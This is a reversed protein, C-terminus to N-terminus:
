HVNHEGKKFRSIYFAKEKSSLSRWILMQKRFNDIIIRNTSIWEKRPGSLKKIYISFRCRDPIEIDPTIMVKLEQRIGLEYPKIHMMIRLERHKQKCIYNYSLVRFIGLGREKHAEIFEILYAIIGNVEESSIRFPLPINWEDGMPKTPMRWVRELSPTVLKSAKYVPFISSLIVIIMSIGISNIVWVSSANFAIPFILTIIKGIAIASIYGIIGGIVAYILSEALFMFAVHLPSLGIASYIFIERQRGYVSDIMIMLVTICVIAMPIIQFEWGMITITSIKSLLYINNRYGLFTYIGSFYKACKEAFDKAMEENGFIVAISSVLGGMEIADNYPIIIIMEPSIHVNWPNPTVWIDIPTITEGDLDKISMLEEEDFFGIVKMKLGFISISDGVSINFIKRFGSPLICVKRDGPIFWRSGPLLISDIKTIKTEELTLGMIAYVYAKRNNYSIEFYVPGSATYVTPYVWARKAIITNNYPTKSIYEVYKGLGISTHGWENRKFMVGIYQPNKGWLIARTFSLPTLSTFLTLGIISVILSFLTLGTRLKKRKLNQLGVSFAMIVASSRSIEAFHLGKTKRRIDILMGHFIQLAVILLPATLILVSYGLIVVIINSALQFGPHLFYLFIFPISFTIVLIIIRKVGSTSFFAREFLFVFPILLFALFQVTNVSDELINRIRLYVKRENSWAKLALSYAMTYNHKNLASITKGLLIYTYRHMKITNNEIINYQKIRKIRKENIYFMDEAYKYASFTIVKQKKEDLVIGEGGLINSSANVMFALPCKVAYASQILIEIRKHPPIFVMSLSIGIHPNIFYFRSYSELETHTGFSYTSLFVNPQYSIEPVNLYEPDICDFLVISSCKFITLYGLDIDILPTVTGSSYMHVGEDLAYVINGTEPDIKFASLTYTSGPFPPYFGTIDFSGNRTFYVINNIIVFSNPVPSYWSKSTNWVAVIGKIHTWFTTSIIKEFSFSSLYKEHLNPTNSIIHLTCLILEAQKRLNELILKEFTDIPTGVYQRCDYITTLTWAPATILTFIESDYSYLRLGLTTKLTGFDISTMNLYSYKGGAQRNIHNFINFIYESMPAYISSPHKQTNDYGLTIRTGYITAVITSSHSSIDLNILLIIKRAIDTQNGFFYDQVFAHAGRLGQHHGSFAIFMVTYKPKNENFYRALELLISIGCSEEAGPAISPFPSFSDYHSTIVIYQNKFENGEIIGIINKANIEKWEMRATLHVRVKSNHLLSLLYDGDRRLIMFRPFNLPPHRAYSFYKSGTEMYSTEEPQIFIVAKAGLKVANLWNWGSNYDMLVISGNLNKGDFKDLSGDGVYILEGYIGRSPLTCPAVVNPLAPYIKFVKKIPYCIELRAGLDLPIPLSYNHYYVNKLGYRKFTNYIYEAAENYGSYGTFRTGLSSLYKIHYVVRSFDFKSLISNITFSPYPHSRTPYSSLIILLLTFFLITKKGVSM